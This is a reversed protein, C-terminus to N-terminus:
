PSLREQFKIGYFNYLVGEALKWPYKIPVGKLYRTQVTCGANQGLKLYENDNLNLMFLYCAAAGVKTRKDFFDITENFCTTLTKGGYPVLYCDKLDIPRERMGNSIGQSGGGTLPKIKMLSGYPGNIDPTWFFARFDGANARPTESGASGTYMSAICLNANTDGLDTSM